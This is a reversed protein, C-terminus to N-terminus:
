QNKKGGLLGGGIRPKLPKEATKEPEVSVPEESKETKQEDSSNKSGSDSGKKPDPGYKNNGENGEKCLWFILLLNLLPIMNFLQLWGSKGIDHLRRTTVALTPLLLALIVLEGLIPINSFILLAVFASLQWYWFESRRARGTFDAYKNLCVTVAEKFKM